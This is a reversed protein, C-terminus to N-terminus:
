LLILLVAIVIGWGFIVWLYATARTEMVVIHSRASFQAVHSDIGRLGPSVQRRQSRGCLGGVPVSGFMRYAHGSSQLSNMFRRYRGSSNRNMFQATPFSSLHGYITVGHRVLTCPQDPREPEQHGPAHAPRQIGNLLRCYDDLTDPNKHGRLAMLQFTQFDPPVAAFFLPSHRGASTIPSQPEQRRPFPVTSAPLTLM